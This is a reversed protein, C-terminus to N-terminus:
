TIIMENKRKINTESYFCYLAGQERPAAWETTSGEKMLGTACGGQNLSRQWLLYWCVRSIDWLQFLQPRCTKFSQQDFVALRVGAHFGPFEEHVAKNNTGFDWLKCLCLCTKGAPVNGGPWTRGCLVLRAAGDGDARSVDGLVSSISGEKNMAAGQGSNGQLLSACPWFVSSERWAFCLVM